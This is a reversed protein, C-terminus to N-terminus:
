SSNASRSKGSLSISDKRTLKRESMSSRKRLCGLGGLRLSVHASRGGAMGETAKVRWGTEISVGAGAAPVTTKSQRISGNSQQQDTRTSWPLLDPEVNHQLPKYAKEVLSM